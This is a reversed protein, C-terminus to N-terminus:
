QAGRNIWEKIVRIEEESLRSFGSPKGSSDKQPPMIKDPNVGMIVLVIGSEDANGPIVLELPSNLLDDRTVLPIRAIPQGRSHCMLCKPELIHAKISDFTPELPPMPLVGESNEPAGADIWAKLLGLQDSTLPTEPAKPM